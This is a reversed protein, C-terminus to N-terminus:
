KVRLNKLKKIQYVLNFISVTRLIEVCMFFDGKLGKWLGRKKIKSSTYVNSWPIVKVRYNNKIILENLFVEFAFPKLLMIEDLHSIVINRSLFREGTIYDIGIMHWQIPTNKRLSMSIDAEDNLVPLIMDTINKTNLYSLDADLFFIYDGSSNKIGDYLSVSKGLNREHIILKVSKFQLIIKRTGDISGDDIVIVENILPHTALVGLVNRIRKEENYAPIICSIKLM